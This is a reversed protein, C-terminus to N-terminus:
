GPREDQWGQRRRRHGQRHTIRYIFNRMTNLDKTNAHTEKMITTTSLGVGKKGAETTYSVRDGLNWTISSALSIDSNPKATSRSKSPGSNARAIHRDRVSSESNYSSSSSSSSDPYKSGTKASGKGQM